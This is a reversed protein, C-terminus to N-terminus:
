GRRDGGDEGRPRNRGRSAQPEAPGDGEDRQSHDLGVAEDAPHDAQPEAAEAEKKAQDEAAEAVEPVGDLALKVVQDVIHALDVKEGAKLTAALLLCDAAERAKEHYPMFQEVLEAVVNAMVVRGVSTDAYKDVFDRLAPSLGLLRVIQKHAAEGVQVKAATIVADKNRDLVRQARMNGNM